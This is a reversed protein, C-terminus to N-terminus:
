VRVFSSVKESMRHGISTSSLTDLRYETAGSEADKKRKVPRPAAKRFLIVILLSVPLSVLSSAISIFVQQPTFTFPGLTLNETNEKQFQSASYSKFYMMIKEFVSKQPPEKASSIYPNLIYCCVM